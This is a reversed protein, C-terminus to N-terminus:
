RGSFGYRLSERQRDVNWIEGCKGCRWYASIDVRKSSTAIETSRCFPCAAPPPQLPPTTMGSAMGRTM